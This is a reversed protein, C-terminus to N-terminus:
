KTVGFLQKSQRKTLKYTENNKTLTIFNDDKNTVEFEDQMKVGLDNLTILLNKNDFVRKLVFIEGVNFTNLNKKYIVSVNGSFTPIPNGHVCYEPEGIFKFIREILEDDAAHELNEAIDHVQHWKYGLKEILFVEWIRHSRVMRISETLGKKTLTVGKYPVFKIYGKNDLRKIKENVSQITFGLEEAIDSSKVTKNNTNITIEYIVKLYDEESRHM